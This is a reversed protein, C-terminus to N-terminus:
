CLGGLWRRLLLELDDRSGEPVTSAGIRKIFRTQGRRATAPVHMMSVKSCASALEICLIILHQRRLGPGAMSQAERLLRKRLRLLHRLVHLLQGASSLCHLHGIPLGLM